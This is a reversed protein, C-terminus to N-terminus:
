DYDEAFVHGIAAAFLIQLALQDFAFASDEFQREAQLVLKARVADEIRRQGLGRDHAAGGAHGCAPQLGDHLNLEEIVDPRRHHLNAVLQRHYTPALVIGERARHYNSHGDASIKGPTRNIVRLAALAYERM